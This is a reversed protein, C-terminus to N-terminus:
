RLDVRRRGEFLRQFKICDLGKLARPALQSRTCLDITMQGSVQHQVSLKDQGFQAPQLASSPDTTTYGGLTCFSRLTLGHPFRYAGTTEMKLTRCNWGGHISGATGVVTYDRPFALTKERPVLCAPVSYLQILNTRVKYTSGAEADVTRSGARETYRCLVRGGALM